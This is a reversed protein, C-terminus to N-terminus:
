RLAMAMAMAVVATPPALYRLNISGSHYRAVVHRWRWFRPRRTVAPTPLRRRAAALLPQLVSM